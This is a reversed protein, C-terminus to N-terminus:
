GAPSVVPLPARLARSLPGPQEGGGDGRGDHPWASSKPATSKTLAPKRSGSSMRPDNLDFARGIVSRQIDGCVVSGYRDVFRRRLEGVMRAAEHRVGAADTFDDRDRGLMQGLFM